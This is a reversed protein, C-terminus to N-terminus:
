LKFCIASFFSGSCVCGFEKSVASSSRPLNRAPCQGHHRTKTASKEKVNVSGSYIQSHVSREASLREGQKECIQDLKNKSDGKSYKM